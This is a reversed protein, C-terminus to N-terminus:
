FATLVGDALGEEPYHRIVSRDSTVSVFHARAWCQM